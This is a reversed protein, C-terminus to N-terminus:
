GHHALGQMGYHHMKNFLITHDVADFAKSLDLFVIIAFSDKDFAKGDNDVFFSLTTKM